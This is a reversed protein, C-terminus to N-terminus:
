FTSRLQLKIHSFLDFLPSMWLPKFIFYLLVFFLSAFLIGYLQIEIEEWIDELWMLFQKNKNEIKM